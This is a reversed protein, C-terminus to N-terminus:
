KNGKAKIYNFQYLVGVSYVTSQGVNLGNVVHAVKANFGINRPQIKVYAGLSTMRMNNTPFPMDNRRINDGGVCAFQEVFGEAQYAGKLYGIRLAADTANPVRVENTNFVKGDAQYADRDIRINSRFVYSGHATVYVGTKHLYHGILRASATRAGLGISMPLFDPVYNSVPLSGGVAAHVSLGAQNEIFKYKLWGSVDQLSAQGMLNGQSTKTSIYPLGVLVNFKDSIGIAVMPMFAQTTHIGM